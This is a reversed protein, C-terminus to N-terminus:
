SKSAISSIYFNDIIEDLVIAINIQGIYIMINSM